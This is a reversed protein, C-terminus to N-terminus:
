LKIISNPTVLMFASYVDDDQNIVNGLKICVTNENDDLWYPKGNECDVSLAPLPTRVMAKQQLLTEQMQTTLGDKPSNVLLHNTFEFSGNISYILEVQQYFSSEPFQFRMEAAKLESFVIQLLNATEESKYHRALVENVDDKSIKRAMLSEFIMDIVDVSDQDLKAEAFDHSVVGGDEVSLTLLNYLRQRTESDIFPIFLSDM